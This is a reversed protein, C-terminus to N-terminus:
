AFLELQVPNRDEKLSELFEEHKYGCVTSCFVDGSEIHIWWGFKWSERDRPAREIGCQLCRQLKPVRWFNFLEDATMTCNAYM